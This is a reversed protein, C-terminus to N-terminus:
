KKQSIRPGVNIHTHYKILVPIKISSLSCQEHLNLNILHMIFEVWTIVLLALLWKDGHRYLQHMFSNLTNCHRRSWCKQWVGICLMYEISRANLVDVYVLFRTVFRSEANIHCLHCNECTCYMWKIVIYDVHVRIYVHVNVIKSISLSTYLHLRLTRWALPTTSSVPFLFLFTKRWSRSSEASVFSHTSYFSFPSM